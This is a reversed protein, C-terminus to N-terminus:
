QKQATASSKDAPKEPLSINVNSLDSHVSIPLDVSAYSHVTKDAVRMSGAEHIEEEVTDAADAIRLIYEGEPVFRVNFSGDETVHSSRAESKDDAYMLIVRGYNIAHGDALAAVSGAIIHLGLLPITIDVDDRQSGAIIEIPKTDKERFVNGSYVSLAVAEDIRLSAEPPGGFLGGYSSTVTPLAAKVIYKGAPLGSVRYHGVDNTELAEGPAHFVSRIQNSTDLTVESAKGESGLRLVFVQLQSAPGGDDYRLTGSIVAGRELEVDRASDKNAVVVVKVLEKEVKDIDASQKSRIQDPSLKAIPSVYGPYDAVLFYTGPAVKTFLFTGDLGTRITPPESRVRRAAEVIEPAAQLTVTAFRAPQNTDACYVHGSVSGTADPAPTATQAHALALSFGVCILGRALSHRM